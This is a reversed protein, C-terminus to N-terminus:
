QVTLMTQGNPPNYGLMHGPGQSVISSHLRDGSAIQQGTLPLQACRLQSDGRCM